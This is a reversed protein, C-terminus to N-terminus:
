TYHTRVQELEDDTLAFVPKNHKQWQAILSNFDGLHLPNFPSDGASARNFQSCPFRGYSETGARSYIGNRVTSRYHILGNRYPNPEYNSAFSVKAIRYRLVQGAIKPIAYVVGKM